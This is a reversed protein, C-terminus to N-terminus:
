AGGYPVTITCSIAKITSVVLPRVWILRVSIGRSYDFGTFLRPFLVLFSCGLFSRLHAFYWFLFGYARRQEPYDVALFWLNAFEGGSVKVSLSNCWTSFFCGLFQYGFWAASCRRLAALNTCFMSVGRSGLLDPHLSAHTKSHVSRMKSLRMRISVPSYRNIDSCSSFPLAPESVRGPFGLVYSTQDLLHQLHPLIRLGRHASNQTDSSGFVDFVTVRFFVM